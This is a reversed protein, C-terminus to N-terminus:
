RGCSGARGRLDGRVRDGVKVAAQTEWAGLPDGGRDGHRGARAYFYFLAANNTLSPERLVEMAHWLEHAISAMLECDTKRTDVVVRLIRNPGAVTVTLAMCARVNKGCRGPEVYVIGDTGDITDVLRRFTNSWESARASAASLWGCM